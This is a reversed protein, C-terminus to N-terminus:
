TRFIGSEEAEQPTVFGARQRLIEQEEPYNLGESKGSPTITRYGELRKMQEIKKTSPIRGYEKKWKGRAEAIRM